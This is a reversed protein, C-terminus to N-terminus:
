SEAPANVPKTSFIRAVVIGIGYLLTLPIAMIVQSMVDPPTMLAALVFIGVLSYRFGRIMDRHNVLGVRALFYVVIPLQFCIGFALLLNTAM